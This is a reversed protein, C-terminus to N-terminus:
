GRNRNGGYRNNGYSNERREGYSSNNRNQYPRSQTIPTVSAPEQAVKAEIRAKKLGISSVLRGNYETAECGKAAHIKNLGTLVLYKGQHKYFLVIEDDTSGGVSAVTTDWVEDAKATIAPYQKSNQLLIHLQYENGNLVLKRNDKEAM